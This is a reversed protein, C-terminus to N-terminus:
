CSIAATRGSRFCLPDRASQTRLSSGAPKQLMLPQSACLTGPQHSARCVLIRLPEVCGQGHLRGPCCSGCHDSPPSRSPSRWIMPARATGNPTVVTFSRMGSQAVVRHRGKTQQEFDTGSPEGATVGDGLFRVQTAGGLGAWITATFRSGQTEARPSLDAIATQGAGAECHFVVGFDASDVVGRWTTIQFTRNDPLADAAVVIEPSTSSPAAPYCRAAVGTGSFVVATAGDLYQGLSVANSVETGQM